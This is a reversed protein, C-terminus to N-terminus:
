ESEWEPVVHFMVSRRSIVRVWDRNLGSIKVTVKGVVEVYRTDEWGSGGL